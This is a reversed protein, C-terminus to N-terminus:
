DEHHKEFYTELEKSELMNFKAGFFANIIRIKGNINLNFEEMKKAPVWLENHHHGGVNEVSFQKLYDANVDFATVLGCYGSFEDGTNWKGAIEEAYEQNLVPYFIPQWDLRPPFKQYGSEKILQYEKIGIPRYLTTTKIKIIKLDNAKRRSSRFAFSM